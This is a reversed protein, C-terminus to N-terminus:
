KSSSSSSVKDPLRVALRDRFIAIQEVYDRCKIRVQWAVLLVSILHRWQCKKTAFKLYVNGYM